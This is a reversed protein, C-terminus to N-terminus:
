PRSFKGWFKKLYKLFISFDKPLPAEITKPTGDEMLFTIESAHLALRDMLPKELEDEKRKYFRKMESLCYPRGSGYFFDCLVPFGISQLHVRIQHQRGTHPMVKLFTVGKFRECVEYETLSDKGVKSMEVRGPHHPDPRLPFDIRGQSDAVEGQVFVHYIKHIKRDQFQQEIFNRTPSDKAFLIVGSADRDLRHVPWAPKGLKKIVWDKLIEENKDWRDRIVLLGSPKDLAFIKEDEYLITVQKQTKM